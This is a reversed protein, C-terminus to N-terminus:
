HRFAGFLAKLIKLNAKVRGGFRPLDPRNSVGIGVQAIRYGRRGAAFMLQTGISSRNDFYGIERYVDMRYAKMGCLPDSVGISISSYVAFLSEAVRARRRRRGVVVDASGQIIPALIRPLDDTDHQGDADLTVVVSAERDAAMKFGDNLASDYGKSREHRVVIAGERRAFDSTADRSGDDVLVVETVHKRAGRVVDSVTREEDLAPIVAVTRMEAM